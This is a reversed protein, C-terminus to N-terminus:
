NLRYFQSMFFYQFTQLLGRILLFLIFSLWIANISFDSFFTFLGFYSVLSLLMADRMARSAALGIFIGDWIYGSFAVLPLIVLWVTYNNLAELVESQNTYLNAITSGGLGFVGSCILALGGGFLFSKQIVQKLRVENNGGRYKGVLSEAAHAFGDIGYSMWSLFQLLVVNTALVLPGLASSQRYLFGFAFTLAVTRMFLDANVKVFGSWSDGVQAFLLRISVRKFIVIFLLIVGFYQAIVTGLAAGEIGMSRHVVLYYSLTINLVNLLITVIMPTMADQTGFLWGILAYMCITAPAGWIVINYYAFVLPRQESTILLMDAAVIKIWPGLAWLMVGITVGIILAQGLLSITRNLDNAGYAQAVLGTTGMRLFGFNWYLFNFIMAGLGVAGLHMVSLHGMLATDVASLLPISINSIINPIAFRFIEKNM